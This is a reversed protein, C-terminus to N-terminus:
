QEGRSCVAHKWFWILTQSLFVAPRDISCAQKENEVVLQVAEYGTRAFSTKSLHGAVALSPPRTSHPDLVM